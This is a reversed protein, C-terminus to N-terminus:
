TGISVAITGDPEYVIESEFRSNAGDQSFESLAAYFTNPDAYVPFGGSAGVHTSVSVATDPSSLRPPLGTQADNIYVVKTVTQTPSPRGPRYFCVNLDM